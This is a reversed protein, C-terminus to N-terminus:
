SPDKLAGPAAFTAEKPESPRIRDRLRVAQWVFMGGLALRCLWRALRSLKGLWPSVREWEDGKYYVSFTLGAGIAVYGILELIAARRSGAAPESASFLQRLTHMVPLLLLTFDYNGHGVWLLNAFCLFDVIRERTAARNIWCWLFISGLLGLRALGEARGITPGLRSLIEQISYMAWLCHRAYELWQRVLQRPPCDVLQSVALLAALHIFSAIAVVSIRGRIVPYCLFLLTISPKALALAFLFGALWRNTDVAELALLTCVMVFFTFQNAYLVAQTPPWVLIVSAAALAAPLAYGPNAPIAQRILLYSLLGLLLLNISAWVPAVLDAPLLGASYALLLIASPPYTADPPQVDPLVGDADQWGPVSRIDTLMPPATWGLAEGHHIIEVGVAYPNHGARIYQCVAWQREFDGFSESKAAVLFNPITQWLGLALLLCGPAVAAIRLRRTSSRM